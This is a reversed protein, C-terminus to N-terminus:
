PAPASPAAAGRTNARPIWEDMLKDCAPPHLVVCARTAWYQGREPHGNLVNAGIVKRFAIPSTNYYLLAEWRAIQEASMGARPKARTMAIYDPWDTLLVTEAPTEDHGTGIHMLQFRLETFAAEVNMYDHVITGFLVSLASCAIWGSRRSFVARVRPQLAAGAAGAIVGFPLLLYAHHLPLELMAHILMVMLASFMLLQETGAISRMIRWLWWACAGLLVLALPWGAWLVLDLPLNHSQEMYLQSMAPHETYVLLFGANSRNWGYGLWPHRSAADLAMGWIDARVEGASRGFMSLETPSGLSRGLPELGFLCALYFAYLALAVRLTSRDLFKPRRVSLALVALTLTLLATRSETLAVGVVIFAAGVIAVPARIWKKHAAWATGLLGWLLLSALQNPQGLNAYPRSGNNPLVWIDTLDPEVAFGLWQYLQMGVCAISAFCAAGLVFGAPGGGETREWHEGLAFVAALGLLFLSNLLAESVLPTMGIAFQFWPILATAAVFLPIGSLRIASRDHALRWFAALALAMAVWASNHFTNWPKYHNPLLWGVALVVALMFGTLPVDRM